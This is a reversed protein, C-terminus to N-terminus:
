PDEDGGGNAAEEVLGIGRAGDEVKGGVDKVEGQAARAGAVDGGAGPGAVGDGGGAGVAVARAEPDVDGSVGFVGEQGVQRGLGDGPDFGGEGLGEGSIEGGQRRRGLRQWNSNGKYNASQRHQKRLYRKDSRVRM